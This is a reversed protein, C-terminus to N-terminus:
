ERTACIFCVLKDGVNLCVHICYIGIYVFVYMLFIRYNLQIAVHVCAYPWYGVYVGGPKESFGRSHSETVARPRLIVFWSRLIAWCSEGGKGKLCAGAGGEM